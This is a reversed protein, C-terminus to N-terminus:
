NGSLACAQTVPEIRNPTHVLTLWAISREGEREWGRERFIHLHFIKKFLWLCGGWIEETIPTITSIFVQTFLEGAKESGGSHCVPQVTYATINFTYFAM